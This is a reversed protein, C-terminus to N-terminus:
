PSCTGDQPLDQAWPDAIYAQVEAGFWLGNARAVM